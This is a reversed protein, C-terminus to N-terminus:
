KGRKTMAAFEPGSALSARAIDRVGMQKWVADPDATKGFRKLRTELEKHRTKISKLTIARSRGLLKAVADRVADAADHVLADADGLLYKTKGGSTLQALRETMEDSTDGRLLFAVSGVLAAVGIFASLYILTLTM